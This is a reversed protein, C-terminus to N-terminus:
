VKNKVMKLTELTITRERSGKTWHVTVDIKLLKVPLNDTRNEEVKTVSADVQHGDETVDSWSKEALEDDDLIERMKSEAIMSAHIYDGSAAIGRMNASFLQFVVVLAISMIALAVLIELLTFGDDRFYLLSNRDPRGMM